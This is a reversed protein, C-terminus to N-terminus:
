AAVPPGSKRGAALAEWKGIAEVLGELSASQKSVTGGAHVREARFVPVREEGASYPRVFRWGRGEAASKAALVKADPEVPVPDPVAVPRPREEARRLRLRLAQVEAEAATLKVDVDGLRATAEEAQEEARQLQKTQGRIGRVEKDLARVRANAAVLEARLEDVNLQRTAM